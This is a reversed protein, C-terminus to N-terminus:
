VDDFIQKYVNQFTINMLVGLRKIKKKIKETDKNVVAGDCKEM